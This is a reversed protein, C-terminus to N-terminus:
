RSINSGRQHHISEITSTKQRKDITWLEKKMESAQQQNQERKEEGWYIQIMSCFELHIIISWNPGQRKEDTCTRKAKKRNTTKNRSTRKRKERENERKEKGKKRQKSVHNLWSFHIYEKKKVHMSCMPEHQVHKIKSSDIIDARNAYARRATPNTVLTPLDRKRQKLHKEKISTKRCTKRKIQKSQAECYNKM